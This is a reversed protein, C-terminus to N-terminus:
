QGLYRYRLPLDSDSLGTIEVLQEDGPVIDIASDSIRVNEREEFVFCKVPKQSNIRLLQKGASAGPQQKVELGRDSFDLYKLPQPWDVHRAVIQGDIWLRAALVHPEPEAVHDIIGSTIDTTGNPSITVDTFLAPARLDKGTVVSLFRLEVTGHLVEQRSSAVWIEYQSQKPPVAHVVSWDHHSRRVGIVIPQMVRKVTYYAPKPRLFYDVIAWSITPWCDNIQWLLAGGCKREDGWQRRWGGYGFMMTEAQVVQTLYTYTELDTALRLNEVLYTALRREHGDAKNHFDMVHSQPHKDAEKELFYEITSMHPFAEMGFESNFRGGISDFIQYKEQTGHWVNWQHIDGVTPDSTIKGDGWPSGPHYFTSPSHESVLEPLLKEYIYRAPFDSKLWNEPNKDEYNYTLGTQEQVQYDENNGAYIAICPHNRLRRINYATEERISELLEPWVPYNGCAFMFDQWVLVGLEDCADYFADDEYIGGGWVRTMVQGGEVMLEIWKRYRETSISPLLNDAPIWCSGGCFIDMGNIRFFFSKGHKDPQQIVEASRIGFKKSVNHLENADCLLSVSVEYLTQAGYGHPWWLEPNNVRFTTRANQGSSVPIDQHAIEKGRLTLHFRAVCGESKPVDIKAHATITATQHDPALYTQPWLDGVRASYVELRVERWIGATMIIPGWDWGWHYQAKRVGLRGMEGNFGHWKHNPDKKRLEIAKHQACDFEVELVNGSEPSSRLEETIDVRYGLFMNNSELIVKGNLKVSAFTDLGDFVLAVTAGAPIEPQQFVHRYVWSKENVWRAKLENFGLYPDELKKNAILDQQVTSPVASVPMWADSTEDDRDKFTWETSLIQKSFTM